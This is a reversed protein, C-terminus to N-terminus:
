GSTRHMRKFEELADGWIYAFGVPHPIPGNRREALKVYGRADRVFPEFIHPVSPHPLVQDIGRGTMVDGCMFITIISESLVRNMGQRNGYDCGCASPHM